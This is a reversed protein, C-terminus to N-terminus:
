NPKLMFVKGGETSVFVPDGVIAPETNIAGAGLNIDALVAPDPVLFFGNPVCNATPIAPNNCRWGTAPTVSPDGIVVLHGQDTGCFYHWAHSYATGSRIRFWIRQACRQDLPRAGRRFRMRQARLSPPVRRICRNDRHLRWDARHLCRGM